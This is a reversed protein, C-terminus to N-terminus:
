SKIFDGRWIRDVEKELFNLSLKFIEYEHKKKKQKKKPRCAVLLSDSFRHLLYQAPCIEM